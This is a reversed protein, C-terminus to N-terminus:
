RNKYKDINKYLSKYKDEKKNIDKKEDYCKMYRYIVIALKKFVGVAVGDGWSDVTSYITKRDVLSMEGGLNICEFLFPEDMMESEDVAFSYQFGYKDFLRIAYRETPIHERIFKLKIPLNERHPIEEIIIYPNTDMYSNINIRWQKGGYGETEIDIISKDKSNKNFLKFEM